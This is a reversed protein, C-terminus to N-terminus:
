GFAQWFYRLAMGICVLVIMPRIWRVKGGVILHSGVSAGIIQGLIMVGGALWLMHGGLAFLVLSVANSAFNMLKARATSALLSDGCLFNRSFAFLSGTGPGFFGDYFGIAPAATHRYTTESVRPKSEDIVNPVLLYYLAIMILVAPILADLITTDVRQVLLTGVASGILSAIFLPRTDRWKVMGSKLMRYSATMSGFSAQLKNTALAAVPPVQALLLAPLTILGGGGALADVFGAILAALFLLALIEPNALLEM